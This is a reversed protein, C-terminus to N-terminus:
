QYPALVLSSTRKALGGGIGITAPCPSVVGLAPSPSVFRVDLTSGGSTSTAVGNLKFLKGTTTGLDLQKIDDGQLVAVVVLDPQLLPIAKEAIAAYADVSTGPCGLNLVETARGKDTLLREVVKPWADVSEVGWGYTFSDGLALIRFRDKKELDVEHDRIGIASTDATFAFEPTRYSVRYHAPYLLLPPQPSHRLFVGVAQDLALM